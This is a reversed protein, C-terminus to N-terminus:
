VLNKRHACLSQMSEEAVWLERLSVGGRGGMDLTGATGAMSGQHEPHTGSLGAMHAM